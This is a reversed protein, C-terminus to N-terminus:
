RNGGLLRPRQAVLWAVVDSVNEASMPKGPVNGRWDPAGLERRGVIVTTRLGQESVLALYAPDVISSGRKGGRGSAGHCSSCYTDYVGAGRTPDGPADAAYSPPAEGHLVDPQAWHVRMGGVITDIQQDTLFGGSSQAFAPMTTGTVGKATAARIVTDNAVALYVPDSLAVALGGQGDVGHCGACNQSYPHGFDLVKGPPIVPSEVPAERSGCSACVLIALAAVLRPYIM